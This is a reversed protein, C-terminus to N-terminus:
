RGVPRSGGVGSDALAEVAAADLGLWQGLVETTHEGLLPSPRSIWASIGSWRYPMGPMPHSGVAPHDVVEYFRREVLHPHRNLVRPDVVAGAPVGAGVLADVADAVTREAVWAGIAIDIADARRARDADTADPGVGGLGGDRADEGVLLEVLSRWQGDTDISIAVTAEPGEASVYINQPARRPSRNGTRELVEGYASYEVVQEGSCNVAAEVMAAEIAVGSGTRDRELLGFVVATAGHMGAIPDCPGRIILPEHDPEGTIWAMGSMQEMTQAFGVRDRWPGSLGFAPMRAFVATPNLEAISAFDLGFKEAVRPAFNEVVVDAEAILEKVMALGGAQKLDLTVGRKNTNAAVFMHGWEWWDATGYAYGTLRMGDAHSTSEVHLVDAGLMALVHTSSPGAWWSTLDVVKLGALPLPGSPAPPMTAARTSRDVSPPPDHRGLAPVPGFTGFDGDIAYPRRPQQFGGTPNPVFVSRAVLQEDDLMTQATHVQACPIRLEAAKELIEAVTHRTTWAAVIERFEDIRAQRGQFTALSEDALLDPREILLLFNQFMEGTNTNFGIWGDRAPEISPTEVSRAVRDTLPRSGGMSHALDMFVSMAIAMCEVMSLDILAGAGTARAHRAAVLAAPAAYSGSTWESIEGGAQVPPRDPRGRCAIGGSEAQVIFETVPRDAYPGTLGFPTISLVVLHPYRRRVEELTAAATPDDIMFIDAAALFADLESLAEALTSAEYGLTDGLTDGVVSEKGAALYAFLAGDQGEPVGGQSMRRRRLPHGAPPEVLTVHAGGDVFLKSCYAGAISSTHDVVRIPGPSSM